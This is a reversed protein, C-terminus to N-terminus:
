AAMRELLDTQARVPKVRDFRALNADSEGISKLIDRTALKESESRSIKSAQPPPTARQRAEAGANAPQPPAEFVVEAGLDKLAMLREDIQARIEATADPAVTVGAHFGVPLRCSPSPHRHRPRIGRRKNRWKTFGARNMQPHIKGEKIATKIESENLLAIEYIITFADPLLETVDPMYLSDTTGIKGWKSLTGRQMKLRTRLAKLEPNSLKDEAEALAKARELVGDRSKREGTEARALYPEIAAAIRADRKTKITQTTTRSMM